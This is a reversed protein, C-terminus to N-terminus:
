CSDVDGFVVKVSYGLHKAKEKSVSATNVQSDDEFVIPLYTFTHGSSGDLTDMIGALYDNLTKDLNDENAFIKIDLQIGGFTWARGAMAQIAKTRLQKFRYHDKHKANRISQSRDKYPPLGEVYFELVEGSKPAAKTPLAGPEYPLVNM